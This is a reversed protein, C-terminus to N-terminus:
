PLGARVADLEAPRSVPLAGHTSDGDRFPGGGPSPTGPPHPLIKPRANFTGCQRENRYFAWHVYAKGNGSLIKEPPAPFPGARMVADYAGFDFPLFGSSKLVGVKHLTGDRNWVIELDTYLSPDDFPGGALPLNALFRDVYEMHIRRHVAALYAAFPSAAANLATQNGIRVDPVYNEIAARFKSWKAAHNGGAATSRQQALYAERQHQLEEAGFTHEFQSWSLNLNVGNRARAGAQDQRHPTAAGHRTAGGEHGAGAGKPTLRIRYSGSEDEVLMTQEEGGTHETGAAVERQVEQSPQTAGGAMPASQVALAEREGASQAAGELPKESAEEPTPNREDSGEVKALDAVDTTEANGPDPKSSERPAGPDPVEDRDMNRLNAVTEEAVRRNEEAVFQANDPAAVSPDDSKQTVALKEAPDPPPPPPTAQAPAPQVPITPQPTPTPTPEAQPEPKATPEAEPPPEIVEIPVEDEPPEVRAAEPAPKAPEDGLAALEFEVPGTPADSPASSLLREALVGLVEYVPLHVCLSAILAVCFVVIGPKLGRRM